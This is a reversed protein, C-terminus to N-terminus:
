LIQWDFIGMVADSINVIDFYSSDTIRSFHRASLDIYRVQECLVYGQVPSDELQIHLPGPVANQVVPCVVAKGSGNFFNSSVVIVPYSLGSVKLLSGQEVTNM